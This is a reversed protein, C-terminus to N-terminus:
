RPQGGAKTPQAAEIYPTVLLLMRGRREGVGVSFLAFALSDESEQLGGVVLTEGHPVVVETRLDTVDISRGSRSSFRPFLALRIRDEGVVEASVVLSSGVFEREFLVTSGAWTWLRLAPVYVNTGAALSAESGSLVTLMMRTTTQRQRSAAVLGVAGYFQKTAKGLHLGNRTWLAGAKGATLSSEDIYRWASAVQASSREDYNYRELVVIVNGSREKPPPGPLRDMQGEFERMLRRAEAGEELRAGAPERPQGEKQARAESVAPPRGVEPTGQPGSTAEPSPCGTAWLSLGVALVACWWVRGM